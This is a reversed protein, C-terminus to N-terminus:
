QLSETHTHTHTCYTLTGYEIHNYQTYRCNVTKQGGGFEGHEGRSRPITMVSIAQRSVLAIHGGSDDPILQSVATLPTATCVLTKTHTHIHTHTRANTHTHIHIPSTIGTRVQFSQDESLHAKLRKLNTTLVASKAPSWLFIDGRIECMLNANKVVDAGDERLSEFLPNLHLLNTWDDPVDESYETFFSSVSM